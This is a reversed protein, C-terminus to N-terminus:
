APSVAFVQMVGKGKVERSGAPRLPISDDLLRRTAETILVEGPTGHSEMRAAVNVADGWLDYAFKHSGIVGAVVPGSNIGIRLDIPFHTEASIRRAARLMDLALRVATTAHDDQAEPVGVVAMYADGITKIKETGHQQALRDFETFVRNLTEVLQAPTLRASAQTFNVIDAFLVTAEAHEDAIVTEGDKLRLAIADPLINHLLGEARNFERELGTEARDVATDFVILVLFMVMSAGIINSTLFTLEWGPSLTVPPPVVLPLAATAAALLAFGAALVYRVRRTAIPALIVVIMSVLTFMWFASTTGCYYTALLARLPVEFFTVLVIPLILGRRTIMARSCAIWLLTSAMDWLALVRMDLGWFLVAWTGHILAGAPLGTAACLYIRAWQRPLTASQRVLYAALRHM